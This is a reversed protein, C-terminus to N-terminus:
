ASHTPPPGSVGVMFPQILATISLTGSDFALSPSSESLTLSQSLMSHNATSGGSYCGSTLIDIQQAAEEAGVCALFFFSTSRSGSVVVPQILATISLTGSDFALSPSSEPLTLSQSLMNHNATSGGRYCGSTLIVIQQAAEVSGVCAFFVTFPQSRSPHRYAGVQIKQRSEM